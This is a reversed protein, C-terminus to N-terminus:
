LLLHELLSKSSQPFSELFAPLLARSPESSPFVDIFPHLIRKIPPLSQKATFYDFLCFHWRLVLAVEVECRLVVSEPEQSTGEVSEDDELLSQEQHIFHAVLEVERVHLLNGM